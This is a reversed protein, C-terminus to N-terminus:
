FSYKLGTSIRNRKAASSSTSYENSQYNYGVTATLNKDIVYDMSCGVTWCDNSYSKSGKDSNSHDASYISAFAGFSVRHTYAYRMSVGVRWTSVSRYNSDSYWNYSDVNENSYNAYANVSLGEALERRYSAQLTPSWEGWSGVMKYQAGARASISSVPSLLHSVNGTVFISESDSGEQRFEYRYTSSIGYTTRESAKYSFGLGPTLYQRDDQYYGENDYVCGSYALSVNWSWREDIPQSYVNSIGWNLTSSNMGVNSYYGSYEPEPTYSLSLEASYVSGRGLSRSLKAIFSMDSFMRNDTGYATENYLQAGIKAKYSLRSVSEYDAYSAGVGFRVYGGSKKNSVSNNVNDDYGLNLYADYRIAYSEPVGVIPASDYLSFAMATPALAGALVLTKFFMSKM